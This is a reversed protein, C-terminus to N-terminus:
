LIRKAFIDANVYWDGDDKITINQWHFQNDEIRTFIWKRTEDDIYTLVIMDDQKRAELRIIKGTYGYAVDWAYTDPNYIRLSTGYEYDPLIIVDQIAMGELVWSFHWEGKISRSNSNDIYDIKWSGILKGFFNFEEPLAANKSESTLTKLFNQM